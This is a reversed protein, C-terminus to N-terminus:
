YEIRSLLTLNSHGNPGDFSFNIVPTFGKPKSMCHAVPMALACPDQDTIDASAGMYGLFTDPGLIRLLLLVLRLSSSVSLLHTTHTAIREKAEPLRHLLGSYLLQVRVAVVLAAVAVTGLLPVRACKATAVSLAIRQAAWKARVKRRYPFYVTCTPWIVLTSHSSQTHVIKVTCFSVINFM